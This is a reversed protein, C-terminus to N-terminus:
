FKYNRTLSAQSGQERSIDAVFAGYDTGGLSVNIYAPQQNLSLEHTLNSDVSGTLKGNVATLSRTFDTTDVAPVAFMSAEALKDSAKEVISLNDIMVARLLATYTNSKSVSCLVVFPQHM